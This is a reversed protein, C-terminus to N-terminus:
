SSLEVRVDPAGDGDLDCTARAVGETPSSRVWQYQFYQPASISFKICDWGPTAWDSSSSMYKRASVDSLSAPVAATTPPLGRRALTAGPELPVGTMDRESCGVVDRAIAGVNAKGEAEKANQLYKRTGSLALIALVGLLVVVGIVVAVVFVVLRGAMGESSRLPPPPQMAQPPQM